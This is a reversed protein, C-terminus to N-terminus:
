RGAKRVANEFVQRLGQKVWANFNRYGLPYKSHVQKLRTEETPTLQGGRYWVRDLAILLSSSLDGKIENWSKM